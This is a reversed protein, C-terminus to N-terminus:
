PKPIFNEQDSATKHPLMSPLPELVGLFPKLSAESVTQSVRFHEPLVQNFKVEGGAWIQVWIADHLSFRKCTGMDDVTIKAPSWPPYLVQISGLCM